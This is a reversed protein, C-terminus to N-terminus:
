DYFLCIGYVKEAGGAKLAAACVDMTSGTTIIDDFLICNKPANKAIIRGKLNTKRSSRDLNKQIQSTQRKLCRVIKPSGPTKRLLKSLSEIQDWGTKRIKGPRPPVPVLVPEEMLETPLLKLAEIIKEALFHGAALSKGYKFSGLLKWYKGSFPFVTIIHDYAPPDTEFSNRCQLCRYLESILPRGCLDCHQTEASFCKELELRCENCLGYWTEEKSFLTKNCVGCGGPFFYERLFYWTRYIRNM